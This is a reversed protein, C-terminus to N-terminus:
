IMGYSLAIINDIKNVALGIYEYGSRVEIMDHRIM